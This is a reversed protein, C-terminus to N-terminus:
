FFNRLLFMNNLFFGNIKKEKRTKITANEQTKLSKVQKEALVALTKAWKSFPFEFIELVRQLKVMNKEKDCLSNRTIKVITEM